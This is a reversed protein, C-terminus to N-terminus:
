KSYDLRLEEHSHALTEALRRINIMPTLLATIYHYLSVHGLIICERLIRM